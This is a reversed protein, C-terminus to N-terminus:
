LTAEDMLRLYMDRAQRCAYSLRVNGLLRSMYVPDVAQIVVKGGQESVTLRCPLFQSFRRDVAIVENVMAFNCFFLVRARAARVPTALGGSWSLERVFRFNGASIADKLNDVTEDLAYPSTMTLVPSVSGDSYNAQIRGSLGLWACLVAVALCQRWQAIKGASM